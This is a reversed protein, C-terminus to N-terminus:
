YKPLGFTFSIQSKRPDMDKVSVIFPASAQRSTVKKFLNVCAQPSQLSIWQSVIGLVEWKWPKPWGAGHFVRPGGRTLPPPLSNLPPPYWLALKKLPPPLNKTCLCRFGTRCGDRLHVTDQILVTWSTWRRWLIFIGCRECVEDEQM